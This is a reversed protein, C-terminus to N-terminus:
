LLFHILEFVLQDVLEGFLDLFGGGQSIEAFIGLIVHGLLALLEDLRTEALEAFAHAVERQDVHVVDGAVLHTQSRSDPNVVVVLVFFNLVLQHGAFLGVKAEPFIEVLEGIPRANSFLFTPSVAITTVGFPLRSISTRFNLVM